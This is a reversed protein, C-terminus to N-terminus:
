FVPRQKSHAKSSFVQGGFELKGRSRLQGNHVPNELEGYCHQVLM